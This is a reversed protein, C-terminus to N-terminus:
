FLALAKASEVVLFTFGIALAFILLSFALRKRAQSRAFRDPSRRFFGKQDLYSAFLAEDLPTKTRKPAFLYKGLRLRQRRKFFTNKRSFFSM